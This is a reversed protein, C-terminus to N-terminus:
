ASVKQGPRARALIAAVDARPEDAPLPETPPYRRSFEALREGMVVAVNKAKNYAGGTTSSETLYAILKDRVGLDDLRIVEAMFTPAKRYTQWSDNLGERETDTLLAGVQAAILTFRDVEDPTLTTPTPTAKPNQLASASGLEDVEKPPYKNVEQDRQLWRAAPNEPLPSGPEPCRAAPNPATNQGTSTDTGPLPSGPEVPKPSPKPLAVPDTSPRTAHYTTTIGHGTRKARGGGGKREVYGKADLARLWTKVSSVSANLNDALTEVSPYCSLERVSMYTGLTYAAAKEQATLDVAGRIERQWEWLNTSRDRPVHNSKPM